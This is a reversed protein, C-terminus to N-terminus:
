TADKTDSSNCLEAGTSTLDMNFNAGLTISELKLGDLMSSYATVKNTNFNSLNLFFASTSNYGYFSFMESM